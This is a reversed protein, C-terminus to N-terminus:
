GQIVILSAQTGRIVAGIRYSLKETKVYIRYHHTYGRLLKLGTIQETSKAALIQDIKEGLAILLERSKVRDIDRGFSPKLTIKM